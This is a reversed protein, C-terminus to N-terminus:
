SLTGAGSAPNRVWASHALWHAVLGGVTIATVPEAYAEALIGMVLAGATGVCFTTVMVRLRHTPAIFTCTLLILAAALGAGACVVVRELQSFWPAVCYGSVMQESACFSELAGHARLGVSLAVSWASWAGPVVLLWRVWNPIHTRM